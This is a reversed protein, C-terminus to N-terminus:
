LDEMLRRITVDLPPPIPKSLLQRDYDDLLQQSVVGSAVLARKFQALLGAVTLRQQHTTEECCKAAALAFYVDLASRPDLRVQVARAGSGVLGTIPM